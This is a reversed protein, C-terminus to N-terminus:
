LYKWLGSKFPRRGLFRFDCLSAHHSLGQGTPVLIICMKLSEELANMTVNSRVNLRANIRVDVCQCVIVAINLFLHLAASCRCGWPM